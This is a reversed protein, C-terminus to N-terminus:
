SLRYFILNSLIISSNVESSGGFYLSYTHAGPALTRPVFFGAPMVQNTGTGLLVGAADQPEQRHFYVSAFAGGPDEEVLQAIFDSATSNRNWTYCVQILYLGATPASVTISDRLALGQAPFAGGANYVATTTQVTTVSSATLNSFGGIGSLEADIGALHATLHDVNSVEPPTTTPTYNTPTFDIDLQDGDIEDSGGLIHTSAHSEVTLLALDIGALHATLQNLDTVEPPSVSPAYNSPTFDIDLQDGDIEDSGGQIHTSAHDEVVLLALDIGALHATLHDANSAEPPTTSPTYNSPTFDIDLQDGDIEDSGGQIHTASHTELALLSEDIGALHATLHDTNDAEPPATSPAYSSPTFDIDLQDGDIEDSGGHIHTEAHASPQTEPILWADNTENRVYFIREDIRYFLEGPLTDVPFANGSPIVLTGGNDRDYVIKGTITRDSGDNILVQVIKM